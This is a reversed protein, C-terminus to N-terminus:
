FLMVALDLLLHSGELCSGHPFCLVSVGRINDISRM